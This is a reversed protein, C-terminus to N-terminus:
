FIISLFFLSRLYSVFVQKLHPNIAADAMLNNCTQIVSSAGQILVNLRRETETDSNIMTEIHSNVDKSLMTLTSDLADLAECYEKAKPTTTSIEEVHDKFSEFKSKQAIM